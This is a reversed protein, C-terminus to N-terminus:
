KNCTAIKKLKSWAGNKCKTKKVSPTLNKDKCTYACKSNDEACNVAISEADYYSSPLDPCKKTVIPPQPLCHVKHKKKEGFKWQGGYGCCEDTVRLCSVSPVSPVLGSPCDFQVIDCNDNYGSGSNLCTRGVQANAKKFISCEAYDVCEVPSSSTIRHGDLLWHGTQTDEFRTCRLALFTINASVFSDKIVLGPRTSWNNKPCDYMSHICNDQDDKGWCNDVVQKDSFRPHADCKVFKCQLTWQGFDSPWKWQNAVCDLKNLLKGNKYSPYKQDSACSFLLSKGKIVILVDDDIRKDSFETVDCAQLQALLGFLTLKM